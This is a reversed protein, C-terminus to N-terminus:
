ENERAKVFSIGQLTKATRLEDLVEKELKITIPIVGFVKVMTAAWSKSSESMFKNKINEDVFVLFKQIDYGLLKEITLLKAVDTIVKRKQGAKLDDIGAYIEGYVKQEHNFFDVQFLTTETAEKGFPISVYGHKDAPHEKEIEFPVALHKNLEEHLKSLVIEEVERQATSDSGHTQNNPMQDVKNEYLIM